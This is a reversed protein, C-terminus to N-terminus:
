VAGENNFDLIYEKGYSDYCMWGIGNWVYVYETWQDDGTFWEFSEIRPKVQKFNEGRDRHYACVSGINEGIYSIDGLAILEEVKEQEQYNNFLCQGVGDPYGDSHCYIGKYKGNDLKITIYSRTSM